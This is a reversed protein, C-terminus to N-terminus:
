HNILVHHVLNKKVNFVLMFACFPYGGSSSHRRGVVGNVNFVNDNGNRRINRDVLLKTTRPKCNGHKRNRICTEIETETEYKKM